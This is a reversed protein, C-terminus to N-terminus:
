KLGGASQYRGLVRCSRSQRKLEELVPEIRPDDQKGEFDIFFLYEWNKDPAPRAEIRLLNIGAEALPRLAHFLTGSTNNLRLLISVKNSKETNPQAAIAIFRTHNSASDHIDPCLIELGYEDAAHRGAIAACTKDKKESVFKASVATNYYPIQEWDPHTDLYRSCQLLGQPHSYVKQIDGVKAGSVGLLCHEIRIIVEGVIHCAYRELLEHVEIVAGTTSNEIPLVGYPVQGQMVALVVDEFRQLPKRATDGGFYAILAEEGYAGPVGQYAVGESQDAPVVGRAPEKKMRRQEDKSLNLLSRFFAEAGAALQPDKVRAIREQLLTRERGADLVPLGNEDKYRAIERAIEMRQEFLDLLKLDVEDIRARLTELEM